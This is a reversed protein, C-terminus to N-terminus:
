PQAPAPQRNELAKELEPNPPHGAARAKQYHWRALEVMPPNQALYIVALNNHAVGYGPDLQIARRLASEAPGRLGKHNLAIGLFNQIEASQPDLQAARSLATLAEDYRGQRLQIQGLVAHAYADDPAVALARRAQQEAEPLRNLEMQIVALNALTFANREDLRLLQLYQQEAQAFERAAFHRQAEAVLTAAGPPLDRVSVKSGTPPAAGLRPEPARLLALEEPTFPV